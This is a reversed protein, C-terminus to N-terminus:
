YLDHTDLTLKVWTVVMNTIASEFHIDLELSLAGTSADLMNNSPPSYAYWSGSTTGCIGFALDVIKSPTGSADQKWLKVATTNTPLSNTQCGITVTEIEIPQGYLVSPVPLSIQVVGDAAGTSYLNTRGDALYALTISGGGSTLRGLSAPFFLETDPKVQLSGDNDIRFEDEGSGAGFGKLLAGTGLNEIVVTADDGAAKGWIAIGSAPNSNEARLASNDGGSTSTILTLAHGSEYNHIIAGPKLSWAFPSAYIPQRPTLVEGEVTIQLDLQQGDFLDASCDSIVTSFLGNEVSLSYADACPCAGGRHCVEFAVDYTGTPLPHGAADTLRGQIPISPGLPMPAALPRSAPAEGPQAVGPSIALALAIVTAIALGRTLVITPKM